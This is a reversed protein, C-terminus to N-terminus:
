KIFLDQYESPTMGVLKRFMKAFYSQSQFGVDYAIRKVRQRQKLLRKSEEIRVENVVDTFNKGFASKILKSVYFPSVNLEKALDNLSIPKRFNQNIYNMAQKALANSERYQENHLPRFLAHLVYHLSVEFSQYKDNEKLSFIPLSDIDIKVHIYNQLQEALDKILQNVTITIDASSCVLLEQAFEHIIRDLKEPEQKQFANLMRSEYSSLDIQLNNKREEAGVICLPEEDRYLHIRAMAHAYSLSFHSIQTQLSGIGLPWRKVHHQALVYEIVETDQTLLSRNHLLFFVHKHDIVDYLCSYGVDRIDQKLSQMEAKADDGAEILVCLATNASINLYRLQNQIAIENHGSLIMYLCEQEIVPQIETYKKLLAGATAEKNNAIKISSVAHSVASIIEEPKAPKLIFDEVGLRIADQAYSFYDYSTLILYISNHHFEKMKVIAELGNIIPMHIGTLVVDPLVKQYCAVAEAGNAATYLRIIGKFKDNLITYISERETKDDEVILVSCKLREMAVVEVKIVPM